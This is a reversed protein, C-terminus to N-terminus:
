ATAEVYEIGLEEAYAVGAETFLVWAAGDYRTTTILKAQKLQTLNGRQAATMDVNGDTPVMSGWNGADKALLTFLGQSATTLNM